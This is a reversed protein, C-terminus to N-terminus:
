GYVIGLYLLERTAVKLNDVVNLCDHAVFYDRILVGLISDKSRIIM